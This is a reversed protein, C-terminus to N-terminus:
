SLMKKINEIKEIEPDKKKERKKNMREKMKTMKTNQKMKTEFQGKQSNSLNPMMNEFNGFIKSLDGFGPMDKMRQIMEM